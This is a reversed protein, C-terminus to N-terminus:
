QAFMQKANKTCALGTGKSVSAFKALWIILSVSAVELFLQPIHQILMDMHVSVLYQHMKYKELWFYLM